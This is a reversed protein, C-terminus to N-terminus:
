ENKFCEETDKYLEFFFHLYFNLLSIDAANIRLDGNLDYQPDYLTNGYQSIKSIIIEIDDEDVKLDGNVDGLILERHGLTVNADQVNIKAFRTVYGGRSLALIYVGHEVNEFKYCGVPTQPIQGPLLFTTDPEGATYGLAAWNIPPFNPNDLRGIYGPFKPTRSIFDTGDYYTATDIHIPEANLIAFPGQAILAVDFLRAVIPFLNAIEPEDYHIFPFVTGRVTACSKVALEVPKSEARCRMNITEEKAVVLRYYGTDSATFSPITCTSYVEGSDTDGETGNIIEWAEPDNINGTLSYEWHYVLDKGLAGDDTYSGSLTFLTNKCVTNVSDQDIVVEPVCLYIEINNMGWDSETASNEKNLIQFTVSNVGQPLTFSFGYQKWDNGYPISIKGTTVLVANTSANLMQMEIKPPTHQELDADKFWASFSLSMEDCLDSITNKYLVEGKDGADPDVLRYLLTGKRMCETDLNEGGCGKSETVEIRIRSFYMTGVRPEAYYSQPLTKSAVVLTDTPYSLLLTGNVSRSYWYFDVDDIPEIILSISDEPCAVYKTFQPKVVLISVRKMYSECGDTNTQSVYYQYLGTNDTSIPDNAGTYETIGDSQYWNLTCVGSPEVGSAVLLTPATAQYLYTLISNSVTPTTVSSFKLEVPKSEARCRMDITEEKGVVLRYYGVNSAAFSFITYTSSVEGSNTNGETGTIVNWTAPDNIHGTLSYEWHYVLNKGLTGDDSYSGSLAFLAEECVTNISDQDIHVEPVCLYIEIDDMGWDNGTTSNEKNLIQFTVSTVGQPLTFNFGYQQWENGYPITIEGTTVLVANTSANLMQMEIKPPTHHEYNVDMFWASFSLSMEDCLDSITNRYLVKGKDGAAPDVLMFYGRTNDGLYTHDGLTHFTEWVNRANKTLTYFGGGGFNSTKYPLDSYEAPLPTPSFIPIPPAEHGGFDERYLLTGKRKCETEPNEGGCAESEIVEIKIRDLVLTDVRPEAYYTKPLIASAVVCTDSPVGLLPTGGTAIDYWYFDVGDIPEIILSISDEPCAVYQTFQPKVILVSILGKNGECGTITNTQNVYYQLMGTNDTNIAINAESYETIGDSQYWNLVCNASPTTETASLLTPANEQYLFVPTPDVITPIAPKPNLQLYVVKSSARCTWKDITSRNGVVLRYYGEDSPTFSSISLQSSVIGTTITDQTDAVPTWEGSKNIDGSLSHEWRYILEQGFTGDDIYAGSLTYPTDECIEEIEKEMSINVHPACFRIEIDDMAWDNGFRSDERNIIKFIVDTVGAPLRFNFGHQRWTAGVEITVIGSSYVVLNNNKNIMQMEIKPSVVGQLEHRNIDVFWATFSLLMEDCLGDIHTEYLKYGATNLPPDVFMMYGRTTDGLHTHDGIRHFEPPYLRYPNKNISYYGGLLNGISSYPFDSAGPPLGTPCSWPDSVSNGGFDEIYLLTGGIRCDKEIDGCSIYEHITVPMRSFIISDARPEVWFTQPLTICIALHSNSPSGPLVTDALASDYWYFDVGNIEDLKLNVSTGPCTIYNADQPKIVLVSVLVKESECKMTSTQSVYYYNLSAAGTNIPNSAGTYETTGDSQYWKLTYGSGAAAGTALLLDPASEQHWYTLLPTTVTPVPVFNVKVKIEKRDGIHNKCYNTGSVSLYYTSDTTLKSTEYKEGTHFPTTAEPSSYWHFVPSTVESSSVKLLVSSNFCISVATDGSIYSAKARPLVTVEIPNSAARCYWTDISTPSGIVLRYYGTHDLTLSDIYLLAEVIGNTVFDESGEVDEWDEPTNIDGTSSYIWHYALNKGFTGNDIYNGRLTLSGDECAKTFDQPETTVPSTCLHIEIDDIAWDNGDKSVEKNYIRFIISNSSGLTFPIGYQTWFNGTPITIIGSSVLINKSSKEIMQMEIKPSVANAHIHRNVDTFWASFYLASGACLGDIETEYLIRDYDTTYPDIFMMYGRTPDNPHTHDIISYFGDPYIEFPNKTLTYYGVGHTQHITVTSYPLDSHGNELGTPSPSPDKPDNGGFDQKYLLTGGTTCDPPINFDEGLKQMASGAMYYYSISNGYGYGYAIMGAENAFLYSDTSNTLPVNCFSIGSAANDYWTANLPVASARGVSVTTNDKTATPTVILAFHTHMSNSVFPAMLVTKTAQEIPSIWCLSEDGYENNAGPYRAGVMYSCVQVPKDSQIYCGNNSLEIELEVWEGANLKLSTQGGTVPMIVGGTQTITTNDQSAVIRVLEINRNTVPVLFKKGWTNVPPLQQFFNDGGGEINCFSHASFYAIPKNSTIHYGSMDRSPDIQKLYTEGASLRTIELGNQKVITGDETAIVMYQDFKNNGSKSTKRGLHYYETGLAPTPLLNTADALAPITNLAYVSVPVNSQIRITKKNVLAFKTNYAEARQESNLTYTYVGNAPVEFYYTNGTETFKLTCQTAVESVIRIQLVLNPDDTNYQESNLAFSLWFDTGKSEQAQISFACFLFLVIALVIFYNKGTNMM